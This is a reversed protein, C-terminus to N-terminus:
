KRPASGAVTPRLVSPTVFVVLERGEASDSKAKFLWGLVPIDGLSPVKRVTNTSTTTTVGGIVLREGENMLVLTEAKRKNIAPPTGSQGLNVETGRNNNEVVVVMKIKTQELGGAIRERIVSPTVELRLLADKFQIQTGASSITAYPIEEGLSITAKNNELTVIEPRALTHTKNMENLAQLALNINFNSGVIGFAM